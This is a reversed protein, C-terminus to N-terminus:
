ILHTHESAITMHTSESTKKNDQSEPKAEGMSLVILNHDPRLHQPDKRFQLPHEQLLGCEPSRSTYFKKSGQPTM